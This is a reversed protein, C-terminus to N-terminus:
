WFTEKVTTLVVRISASALADGAFPAVSGLAVAAADDTGAATCVGNIIFSAAYGDRASAALTCVTVGADACGNDPPVSADDLRIAVVDPPHPDPPIDLYGGRAGVDDDDDDDKPGGRSRGRKLIM